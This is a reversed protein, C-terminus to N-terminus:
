NRGIRTIQNPEIRVRIVKFPNGDNANRFLEVNHDGAPISLSAPSSIGPMIAGDIKVIVATDAINLTGTGRPRQPQTNNPGATMQEYNQAARALESDGSQRLGTLLAQINARGLRRMLADDRILQLLLHTAGSREDASPDRLLRLLPQIHRAIRSRSAIAQRAERLAPSEV